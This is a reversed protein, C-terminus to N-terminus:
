EDLVGKKIGTLTMFKRPEYGMTLGVHTVFTHLHYVQGAKWNDIQIGDVDFFHGYKRDEMPVWLRIIKKYIDPGQLRDTLGNKKRFKGHQDIHPKSQAGVPQNFISCDWLEFDWKEKMYPIIYATLEDNLLEVDVDYQKHIINDPDDKYYNTLSSIYRANNPINDWDFKSLYSKFDFDLQDVLWWHKQYTPPHVQENFKNLSTTFDKDHVFRDIM